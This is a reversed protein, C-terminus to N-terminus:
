YGVVTEATIEIDQEPVSVALSQLFLVATTGSSFVKEEVSHNASTPGGGPLNGATARQLWAQRHCDWDLTLVPSLTPASITSGSRVEETTELLNGDADRVVQSLQVQVRKYDAVVRPEGGVERSGPNVVWESDEIATITYSSSLESAGDPLGSESFDGETRIPGALTWTHGVAVGLPAAPICLGDAIPEKSSIPPPVVVEVTKKFGVVDRVEITYQGPIVDQFVFELSPILTNVQDPNRGDLTAQVDIGAFVHLLVTITSGDM